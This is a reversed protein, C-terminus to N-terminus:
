PAGLLGDDEGGVLVIRPGSLVESVFDGERGNRKAVERRTYVVYNIERGIRREVRAIVPALERDSARGVIMLDIDSGPRADGRAFSGYIFALEVSRLKELAKRLMDGAGTTKVFINRLDDCVPCDRRVVYRRQNGVRESALIGAKELNALERAVTGAPEGLAAAFGRVHFSEGPHLFLHSLAKVRLGSSFLRKLASTGATM